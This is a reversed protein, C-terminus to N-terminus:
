LMRDVKSTMRLTIFSFRFACLNGVVDHWILEIYYWMVDRDLAISHRTSSHWVQCKCSVPLLSRTYSAVSSDSRLDFAASEPSFSYKKRYFKLRIDCVRFFIHEVIWVLQVSKNSFLRSCFIKLLKAMERPEKPERVCTDQVFDPSDTVDEHVHIAFFSLIYAIITREDVRSSELILVFVLHHYFSKCTKRCWM